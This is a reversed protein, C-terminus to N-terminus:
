KRRLSIMVQALSLLLGIVTLTVVFVEPASTGRGVLSVCGINEGVPLWFNHFQNCEARKVRMM